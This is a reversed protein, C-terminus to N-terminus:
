EEEEEDEEIHHRYEIIKAGCKQCYSVENEEPSMGEMFCWSSGCNSCEWYGDSDWWGEIVEVFSCTKEKRYGKNFLNWATEYIDLPDNGYEIASWEDYDLSDVLDKKLEVFKKNEEKISSM